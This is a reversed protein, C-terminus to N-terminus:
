RQLLMGRTSYHSDGSVRLADWAPANAIPVAALGTCSAKGCLCVRVVRRRHFEPISWQSEAAYRTIFLDYSELDTSNSSL